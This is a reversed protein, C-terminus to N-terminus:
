DEAGGPGPLYRLLVLPGADATVRAKESLRHGIVWLIETGLLLLPLADRRRLPIKEDILFEKLKREGPAGLPHFRDGPLRTRCVPRTGAALLRADIVEENATKTLCFENMDLQGAAVVEALLTGVPLGTRGPVAVPLEWGGPPGDPEPALRGLHLVFHEYDRVVLLGGADFQKGVAAAPLGAAAEALRARDVAGAGGLRAACAALIEVALGRPAHLLALPARLESGTQVLWPEAESLQAAALEELAGQAERASAALRLLARRVEPNHEAALLPLLQHRIRARAQGNVDFNTRDTLYEQGRGALYEIVEARPIELMPRVLRIEPSDESIPRARPMGALGALGTGRLIRFLVTEAQDDATHGTAVFRAHWDLATRELFDYRALRAAEELSLGEAERLAPVDTRAGFFPLDLRAALDAVWDADAASSERIAHDLHAVAPELGLGPALAAVAAALAV